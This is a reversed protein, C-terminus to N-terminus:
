QPEMGTVTVDPLCAASWFGINECIETAETASKMSKQQAKKSKKTKRAKKPARALRRDAPRLVQPAVPVGM